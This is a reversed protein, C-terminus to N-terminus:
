KEWIGLSVTASHFKWPPPACVSSEDRIEMLAPDQVLRGPHCPDLIAIHQIDTLRILNTESHFRKLWGNWKANALNMYNTVLFELLQMTERCRKSLREM